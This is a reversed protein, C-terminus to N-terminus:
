KNLWSEIKKIVLDRLAECYGSGKSPRDVGYRDAEATDLHLVVFDQGDIALFGDILSREECEEKMVSYSSKTKPNDLAKDTEDKTYVPRLPIIDSHDIGTIGVLINSIVARDSHGESIIGIQM